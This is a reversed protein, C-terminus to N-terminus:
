GPGARYRQMSANWDQGRKLAGLSGIRFQVRGSKSPDFAAGIKQKLVEQVNIETLVGFGKSKLAVHFKRRGLLFSGINDQRFILEDPSDV